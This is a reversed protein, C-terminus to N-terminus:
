NTLELKTFDKADKVTQDYAAKPLPIMGKDVLYGDEGIAKKATFEALFEKLGVIVNAHERKVYFFLSRAVPYKSSAINEFTPEVGGITAANLKSKNNEYFGYGIIGLSGPTKLVRDVTVNYADAVDVWAGDERFTNCAQAKAKADLAKIEAFEACGADMVLEIVADRTGHNPAPGYVTIATDPLSKDVDSWKKHPNAVLKGDVPVQKAVALWIQKATLNAPKASKDTVFAIGDFGITIETVTVGNKACEDVESKKIRRSANAIDPTNEGVGACFLKFGGGTGTSEVVPTKFKGKGFQEAVAISFPYVTSSGVIRIQDRAIAPTALAAVIGVTALSLLSRM